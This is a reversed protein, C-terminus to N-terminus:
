MPNRLDDSNGLQLLASLYFFMCFYTCVLEVNNYTYVIVCVLSEKCVPLIHLWASEVGPSLWQNGVRELCWISVSLDEEKEAETM